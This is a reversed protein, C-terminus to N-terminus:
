FRIGTKPKNLALDINGIDDPDVWVTFGKELIGRISQKIGEPINTGVVYTELMKWYSFKTMVHLDAPPTIFRQVAYGYRLWHEGIAALAGPPLMKWRTYLKIGGHVFNFTEGGAQGTTFPPTMATDQVKANIQAVSNEYDGKAAWDSLSKNTDRMYNATDTNSATSEVGASNQIALAGNRGSINMGANAASTAAGLAAGAAAGPGGGSVAGGIIGSGIGIVAKGLEQSNALDTGQIAANRGIRAQNQANDISAGAQDYALSNGAMSKQQSWDSTKYQQSLSHAQNAIALMGANNVLAYSPFNGISMSMELYDGGDNYHETRGSILKTEVPAGTRANYYRPMVVTRQGPAVYNTRYNIPADPHNWNEPKIVIPNGAFTTMEISMFPFTYFKKLGRYRPPIAEAIVPSDRWRTLLMYDNNVGSGRAVETPDIKSWIITNDKDARQQIVKYGQQEPAPVSSISMIGQLIWPYDQYAKIFRAFMRPEFFHYDAGSPTGLIVTGQSTKIGPNDINGPDQTLDINAIVMVNQFQPNLINQMEDHIVMHEAGTDQGESLTLYTRGYDDFQNENAVGIHGKEVYSNGIKVRSGFTQWIDLQVRFLTTGPNMWEIGLIFYYFYMAGNRSAAQDPNLVRVYNFGYCDTFPIELRIPRDVPAYQSGTISVNASDRKDIYRNLAAQKQKETTGPFNVVDRYNNDWPVNTLTIQSDPSWVAYNAGIARPMKDIDVM